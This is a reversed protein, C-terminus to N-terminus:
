MALPRDASSIQEMQISVGVCVSMCNIGHLQCVRTMSSIQEMQISVGVRVSM